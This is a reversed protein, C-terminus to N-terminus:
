TWLQDHQAKSWCELVRARWRAAARRLADMETGGPFVLLADPRHESPWRTLGDEIWEDSVGCVAAWNAAARAVRDSGAHIVLDIGVQHRLFDLNLSVLGADRFQAGGAVLIRM